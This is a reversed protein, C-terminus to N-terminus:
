LLTCYSKNSSSIFSSFLYSVSCMTCSSLFYDVIALLNPSFFISVPPRSKVVMDRFETKEAEVISEGCDILLYTYVCARNKWGIELERFLDAKMPLIPPAKSSLKSSEIVFLPFIRLVPRM